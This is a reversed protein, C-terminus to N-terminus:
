EYNSRLAWRFIWRGKSVARRSKTYGTTRFEGNKFVAGTSNRHIYSPRPCVDLVDEITISPHDRLLKKATNRADELWEERSKDFLDFITKQM